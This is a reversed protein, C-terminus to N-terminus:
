AEGVINPVWASPMKVLQAWAEHQTPYTAVLEVGCTGKATPVQALDRDTLYPFVGGVDAILYIRYM